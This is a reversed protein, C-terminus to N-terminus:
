YSKFSLSRTLLAGKNELMEMQKELDGGQVAEDSQLWIAFRGRYHKVGPPDGPYHWEGVIGCSTFHGEYEWCEEAVIYQKIFRVTDRRLDIQGEV